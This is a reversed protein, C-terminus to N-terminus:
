PIFSLTNAIERIHDKDAWLIFFNYVQGAITVPRPYTVILAAQGRMEVPQDPYPFILCADQGQIRTRLILPESGYPMLPHQAENRCVVELSEGSIAGVQFFGDVGEYRDETVRRWNAPYLFTVKLSQSTFRNGPRPICLKQGILLAYPNVGRNAQVLAEVTVNFIRAISYLTDGRRVIYPFIGPPCTVPPTALPICIVQGIFLNYPNIGPNAEVLDDLSINFFRSISYLTDGPKIVYYNGEPCAPVSGRVPICIQHGVYLSLPNATPNAAVLAQVTTNYQLALKYFTDGAKITYPLTGAPCQRFNSVSM